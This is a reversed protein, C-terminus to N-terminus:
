KVMGAETMRGNHSAALLEKEDKRLRKIRYEEQFAESKNRKESFWV